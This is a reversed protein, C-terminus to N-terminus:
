DSITIASVPCSRAAATAREREDEGVDSRLVVVVDQDNLDFLDDASAVCNAYGKCLTVDASIKPM